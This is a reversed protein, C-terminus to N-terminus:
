GFNPLISIVCEKSFFICRWKLLSVVYSVRYFQASSSLDSSTSWEITEWCKMSGSPETCFECFSEV